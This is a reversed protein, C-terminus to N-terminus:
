TSESTFHRGFEETGEHEDGKAGADHRLAHQAGIGVAAIEGDVEAPADAHHEPHQHGAAHRARVQIGGDRHRQGHVASQGPALHRRIRQGLRGPGEHRGREDEQGIALGERHEIAAHALDGPGLARGPDEGRIRLREQRDAAAQDILDDARRQEHDADEGDAVRLVHRRRGPHARDEHAEEDDADAHGEAEIGAVGDIRRAVETRPEERRHGAPAAADEGGAAAPPPHRNGSRDDARDDAAADVVHADRPTM